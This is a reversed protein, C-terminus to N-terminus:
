VALQALQNSLSNLEDHQSGFWNNIPVSVAILISCHECISGYRFCNLGCKANIQEQDVGSQYQIQLENDHTCVASLTSSIIIHETNGTMTIILKKQRSYYSQYACGCPSAAHVMTELLGQPILFRLVSDDHFRTSSTSLPNFIARDTDLSCLISVTKLM